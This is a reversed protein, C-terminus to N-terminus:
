LIQMRHERQKCAQIHAITRQFLYENTQTNRKKKLNKCSAKANTNTLYRCVCASACKLKKKFLYNFRERFIFRSFSFFRRNSGKEGLLVSYNYIYLTVCTYIIHMNTWSHTRAHTHLAQAHSEGKSCYRHDALERGEPITCAHTSTRTRVSFLVVVFGGGEGLVCM